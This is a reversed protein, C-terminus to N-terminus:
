ANVYALLDNPWTSFLNAVKATDITSGGGVAVFGDFDGATAFDIADKFSVDTPEVRVRDYVVADIGAARLADTVTAVPESAALNPDTVVMVRRAGLAAMDQGVERTVGPGFKISSTDMTFATEHSM